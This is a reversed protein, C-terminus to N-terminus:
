KLKTDSKKSVCDILHRYALLHVYIFLSVVQVIKEPLCFSFSFGFCVFKHFIHGFNDHFISM